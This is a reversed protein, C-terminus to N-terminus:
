HFIFVCISINCLKKGVAKKHLTAKASCLAVMIWMSLLMYMSTEMTSLPINEIIFTTSTNM